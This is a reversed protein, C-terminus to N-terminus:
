LLALLFWLQALEIDAGLFDGSLGGHDLATRRLKGQLLCQGALLLLVQWVPVGTLWTLLMMAALWLRQQRALRPTMASCVLRGLSGGGQPPASAALLLSSASQSPVFSYACRSIDILCYVDRLFCHVCRCPASVNVFTNTRNVASAWLPNHCILLSEASSYQM